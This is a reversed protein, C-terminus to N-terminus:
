ICALDGFAPDRLAQTVLHTGPSWRIGFLNVLAAQFSVQAEVFDEPAIKGEERGGLLECAGLLLSYLEESVAPTSLALLCWSSNKPLQCPRKLTLDSGVPECAWLGM